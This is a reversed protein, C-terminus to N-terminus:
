VSTDSVLQQGLFCLLDTYGVLAHLTEERCLLDDECSIRDTLCQKIGRYRAFLGDLSLREVRGLLGDQENASTQTGSRDVLAHELVKVEHTRRIYLKDPLRTFVITRFYGLAQLAHLNGVQLHGVKDSVHSSGVTSGVEDDTTSAGAADRFEAEDSFRDDQHWARIHCFVM